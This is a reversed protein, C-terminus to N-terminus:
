IKRNRSEPRLRRIRPSFVVELCKQCPCRFAEDKPFVIHGCNECIQRGNSLVKMARFGTGVVCYPCRPEKTKRRTLAPSGISWEPARTLTCARITPPSNSLWCEACLNEHNTFQKGCPWISDQRSSRRM